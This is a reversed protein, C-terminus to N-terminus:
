KKLYEDIIKKAETFGCAFFVQYRREGLKAMLDSQEAIHPTSAGGAKTMIREGERKLEIFLGHYGNRPEYIVLDPFARSSRLAKVKVAQGMTLRIGSLDTNFICNPYALRLYECVQRHVNVEKTAGKRVQTLLRLNRDIGKM